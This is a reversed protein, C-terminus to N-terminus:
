NASLDSVPTLAMPNGGNAERGALAARRISWSDAMFAEVGSEQMKLLDRWQAQSSPAPDATHATDAPGPTPDGLAATAAAPAPDTAAHVHTQNTGAIAHSLHMSRPSSYAPCEFMFHTPTEAAQRCCPCLERAQQAQPTENRRTHSHFAKLPLCELRMQMCLELGKALHGPNNHFPQTLYQRLKPRTATLRGIEYSAVYRTFVPGCYKRPPQTWYETLYAIAQKDVYQKFQESTMDQSTQMDIDYEALLKGMTTAWPNYKGTYANAITHLLRDHEIQQLHHWYRIALTECTVHLPFLGLEQQLCIHSTTPPCHFARAALSMQWSDLQQRVQPRAWVQAAYTLVPQVITTLTLKRVHPPLRTQTLVKHHLAAVANAKATRQQLHEDWTGVDTITVGLYKYSKVQPITTAGWTLLQCASNQTYRAASIRASKPGGRVKMVATKSTDTESVSARLQWRTLATRTQNALQQLSEPSAAVGVLDDAYMLAVLKAVGSDAQTPIPVGEHTEWVHQLVSDIYVNFMTTALTDGQEWGMDPEIQRSFAGNHMVVSPTHDIMQALVRFIKGRIGKQWLHWLLGARWVTDYAKDIDVFLLYTDLRQQMRADLCTRLMFINDVASRAPRFGQQADHLKDHEELHTMLRENLVLNYLKDIASGLTIPRYNKPETPDNKKYIPTIVGCTKAKMEMSFQMDFLAAMATYLAEGGYKLLENNVNDFPSPAKNNNLRGAQLQVEINTIPDSLGDPGADEYSLDARFKAVESEIHQRHQTDFDAQQYHTTTSSVKEYHDALTACIDQDSTLLGPGRPDKLAKPGAGGSTQTGALAKLAAWMGKGDCAKRCSYISNILRSKHEERAQAVTNRLNKQATKLNNQAEQVELSANPHQMTLNTLTSAADDRSKVAQRVEATRVAPACNTPHHKPQRFGITADVATFIRECASQKAQECAQLPSLNGQEVSAQLNNILNAFDGFEKEIAKPYAERDTKDQESMASEALTLKYTNARPQQFRPPTTKTVPHPLTFWMLLHDAGTFRTGTEIHLTSLPQSCPPRHLALHAPALVYDLISCQEQTQAGTTVLRRRTYAPTHNNPNSNPHRNNLTYLNTSKLLTILQQGAADPAAIDGWQGIHQGATPASGVKSNFDGMVVVQGHQQFRAIDMHLAAYTASIDRTNTLTSPPLYVLGIYIPAVGRRKSNVELWISEPLETNTYVKTLPALTRAVYFGVGGGNGQKRPKGVFNYGPINQPHCRGEWTETIGMIDLNLKRMTDELETVNVATLGCMNVCGIKIGAQTWTRNAARLLGAARRRQKRAQARAAQRSPQRAQRTDEDTGNQNTTTRTFYQRARCFSTTFTNALYTVTCIPGLLARSAFPVIIYAVLLTLLLTCANYLTLHTAWRSKTTQKTHGLPPQPAEDVQAPAAANPTPGMPAGLERLRTAVALPIRANTPVSHRLVEASTMTETDDDAYSVDYVYPPSAQPNYTAVGYYIKGQYRKRIISIEQVQLQPTTAAIPAGPAGQRALHTLKVRWKRPVEEWSYAMQQCVAECSVTESDHSLYKATYMNDTTPLAVGWYVKRQVRKRIIVTSKPLGQLTLPSAIPVTAPQSPAPTDVLSTVPTQETETSEPLDRLMEFRNIASPQSQQPPLTHGDECLLMRWGLTSRLAQKLTDRNAKLASRYAAPIGALRVRTAANNNGTNTDGLWQVKGMALATLATTLGDAGLENDYKRIVTSLLMRFPAGADVQVDDRKPGFMIAYMGRLFAGRKPAAEARKTGTPPSPTKNAAPPCPSPVPPALPASRPGPPCVTNTTLVCQRAPTEQVVLRWANELWVHTDPNPCHGARSPGAGFRPNSITRKHGAILVFYKPPRPQGPAPGCPQLDAARQAAQTGTARSGQVALRNEQMNRHGQMLLSMPARLTPPQVAAAALSPCCMLPFPPVTLCLPWPIPWLSAHVQQGM